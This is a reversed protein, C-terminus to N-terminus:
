FAIGLLLGAFFLLVDNRSFTVYKKNNTSQEETKFIFLAALLIPLIMFNEANAINGELFPTAFLFAFIGTVLFQIRQNQFLRKSLYFLTFVSALGFLLSLLRISTQNGNFM